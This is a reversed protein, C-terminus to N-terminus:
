LLLLTRFMRKETQDTANPTNTSIKTKEFNNTSLKTQQVSSDTNQVEQKPELEDAHITNSKNVLAFSALAVSCLGIGVYKRFGFHQREESLVLKKKM